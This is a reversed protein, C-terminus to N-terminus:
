ALGAIAACEPWSAWGSSLYLKYALADQEAPTADSALGAGGLGTWTGYSFQYAGYYGNGTNLSYDDSSECNRIAAFAAALSTPARSTTSITSIASPPPPGAAVARAAAAASAAAAAAAAAAAVAAREAAATQAAVLTALRGKVSSLVTQESVLTAIARSRATTSESLAAAAAITAHQETARASALAARDNSLTTVASTVDRTAIGLYADGTTIRNPLGSLFLNVSDNSGESVYAQVAARELLIETSKINAGVVALEHTTSALTRLDRHYNDVAVLYASGIQALAANDNALQGSIANAQAQLGGTTVAGSALVPISLAGSTVLLLARAVSRLPPKQWVRASPWAIHASSM